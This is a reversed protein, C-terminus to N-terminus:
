RFPRKSSYQSSRRAAQSGSRHRAGHGARLAAMHQNADERTSAGVTVEMINRGLVEHTPWGYLAQAFPNWYTIAGTDDTAIVAAKLNQFITTQHLDM